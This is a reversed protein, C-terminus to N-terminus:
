KKNGNIKHGWVFTQGSTIDVIDARFIGEKNWNVIGFAHSWNVKKGKLWKNSSSSCKKLCGLSFAAHIGNFSAVSERAVDHFHGYMINVGLNLASHRAHYIGNYQGGHHFYLEGIKLFEGYRFFTYGRQKLFMCNEPLYRTLYPHEEVFNELWVEHNGLMMYKEKIGLKNCKNDFKNLLYNVDKEDQKIDKIIYEVPPRKKKKYKWCSVSNWEGVDGLHILVNPKIIDMAKLVCNIAADDQLPSHTDPIVIATKEKM